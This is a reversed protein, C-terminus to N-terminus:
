TSLGGQKHYQKNVDNNTVKKTNRLKIYNIQDCAGKFLNPM